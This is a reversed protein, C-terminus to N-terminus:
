LRSRSGELSAHLRQNPWNWFMSRDRGLDAVRFEPLVRRGADWLVRWARTAALDLEALEFGNQTRTMADLRLRRPSM